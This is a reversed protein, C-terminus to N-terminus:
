NAILSNRGQAAVSWRYVADAIYFRFQTGDFYVRKVDGVCVKGRNVIAAELRRVADLPGDTKALKVSLVPQVRVFCIAAEFYRRDIALRFKALPIERANLRAQVSPDGTQTVTLTLEPAFRKLVEITLAGVDYYPNTVKGEIAAQTSPACTANIQALRTLYFAQRTSNTRSDVVKRVLDQHNASDDVACKAWRRSLAFLSRSAAASGTRSSGLTRETVMSAQDEIDKLATVVIEDSAPESQQPGSQASFQVIPPAVVALLIKAITIM